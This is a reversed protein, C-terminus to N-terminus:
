AIRQFDIRVVYERHWTGHVNATQTVGQWRFLFTVCFNLNNALSMGQIQFMEIKTSLISLLSFYLTSLTPSEYM